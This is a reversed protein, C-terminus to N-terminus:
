GQSTVRKRLFLLRGFLRRAAFRAQSKVLRNMALLYNITRRAPSELDIVEPYGADSKEIRAAKGLFDSPLFPEDPGALADGQTQMVFGNGARKKRVLRHLVPVGRSTKFFVLDGRQLAALPVKRITLLEGGTLFPSMSAGTVQVRLSLGAGLLDEFLGLVEDSSPHLLTACGPHNDLYLNNM